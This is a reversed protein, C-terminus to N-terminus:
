MVASSVVNDTLSPMLSISCVSTSAMTSTMRTTYMKRCPQLAVSIGSMATGTDNIAVKM